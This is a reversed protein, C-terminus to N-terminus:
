KTAPTVAILQYDIGSIFCFVGHHNIKKTKSMLYILLLSFLLFFM